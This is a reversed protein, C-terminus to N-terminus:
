KKTLKLLEIGLDFLLENTELVSLHKQFAFILVSDRQNKAYLDPFGTSCFLTHVENLTLRMALCLALLRDRSPARCRGDFIQYASTRDLGSDEICQSRSINKESLLKELAIHLSEQPIVEPFESLYTEIKSTSKLIELLEQTNKKM